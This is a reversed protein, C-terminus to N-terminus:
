DNESNDAYECQLGNESDSQTPPTSVDRDKRLRVLFEGCVIAAKHESDNCCFACHILGTLETVSLLASVSAM